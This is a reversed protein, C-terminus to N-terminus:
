CYPNVQLVDFIKKLISASMQDSFNLRNEFEHETDYFYLQFFFLPKDVLLLQNIRHYVQRQIRFTYVGRNMSSLENDYNVGLSTFTFSNNYICLCRKVEQSEDSSVFLEYLEHPVVNM